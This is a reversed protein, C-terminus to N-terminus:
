TGDYPLLHLEFELALSEGRHALDFGASVGLTVHRAIWWEVRGRTEVLGEITQLYPLCGKRLEGGPCTSFGDPFTPNEGIVRAGLVLLGGVDLRGIRHHAGIVSAADFLQGGSNTIPANGEVTTAVTPGGLSAGYALEVGVIMTPGRWLVGTRFGLTWMSRRSEPALEAHYPASGTANFATGSTALAPIAVHEAVIASSMFSIILGNAWNCHESCPEATATASWLVLIALARM